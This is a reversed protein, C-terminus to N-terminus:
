SLLLVAYAALWHEVMYHSGVVHPLAADAHQWAADLAIVARPDGPPLSEAIRRWCWARSANLGHLHAIQGDSADSVEAPTFLAPPSGSALGPLFGTLWAPFEGPGLLTAMLEAEALAPSLFDHGSPEYQGPYDTDDGFWGLVRGRIAELLDPQGAAALRQAWPLARSLGFASNGHVGHRVPYTATELWDLFRGTLVATLPALAESWRRAGADGSWGALEDALTLAWGWGYPREWNAGSGAAWAAEAALGDASLQADLVARVEGAPVKDGAVRLLRALVWHMEVCSHWDLSGFFVPNQERVRPAPDDPGEQLHVVIVPFERAINAMAVGAYGAAEDALIEGWSRGGAAARPGGAGASPVGSV